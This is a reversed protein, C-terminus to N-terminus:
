IASPGSVVSTPRRGEDIAQGTSLESCVRTAFGSVSRPPDDIRSISATSERRIRVEDAPLICPFVQLLISAISRWAHGGCFIARARLNRPPKERLPRRLCPASHMSSATRVNGGNPQRRHPV